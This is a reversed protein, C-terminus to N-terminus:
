RGWWADITALVAAPAVSDLEVLDTPGGFWGVREAREEPPTCSAPTEVILTRVEIAGWFRRCQRPTSVLAYGHATRPDLEGEPPAQHAGPDALVARVQSYMVEVREEPTRPWPGWLGDVVAAAACAGGAALILAGIANQGVGVVLSGPVGHHAVTWRALTWPGSPDYGGHRPAPVGGHGPLDPAEWDPGPAAARWRAGGDPDGLDHLVVALTM